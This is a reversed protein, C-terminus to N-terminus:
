IHFYQLFLFDYIFNINFIILLHVCSFEKLGQYFINTESLSWVQNKRQLKGDEESLLGSAFCSTSEQEFEDLEAAGECGDDLMMMEETPPDETSLQDNQKRGTVSRTTRVPAAEELEVAVAREASDGISTADPELEVTYM